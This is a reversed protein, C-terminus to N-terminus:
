SGPGELIGARQAIIAAEVRTKKVALKSLISSVHDKVTGVSSYLAAAIEGNSRGSALLRLVDIERQTLTQVDAVSVPDVPDDLYGSIVKPSIAESLM